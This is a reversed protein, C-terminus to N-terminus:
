GRGPAMTTGQETMKGAAVRRWKQKSMNLVETDGDDYRVVHRGAKAQYSVVTGAYFVEDQPWWIEVRTGVLDGGGPAPAGAAGTNAVAQAAPAAVQASALQTTHENATAGKVSRGSLRGAKGSSSVFPLEAPQQMMTSQAAPLKTKKGLKQRKAAPQVPKNPAGDAEDAHMVDDDGHDHSDAAAGKAVAAPHRQHRNVRKSTSPDGNQINLLASAAAAMTGDDVLGTDHTTNHQHTGMSRGAAAAAAAAKKPGAVKAAVRRRVVAQQKEKGVVQQQQQPQQKTNTGATAATVANHRHGAAKARKSPRSLAVTPKGGPSQNASDADSSLEDDTTMQNPKRKRAAAAQARGQRGRASGHRGEPTTAALATAAEDDAAATVKDEDSSSCDWDSDDISSESEQGGRSLKTSRRKKSSTSPKNTAKKPPKRKPPQRVGAAAVSPRPIKRPKPPAM